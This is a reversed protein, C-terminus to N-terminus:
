PIRSYLHLLFSVISLSMDIVDLFLSRFTVSGKLIVLSVITATWKKLSYQCVDHLSILRSCILLTFNQMEQYFHKQDEKVIENWKIKKISTWIKLWFNSFQLTRRCSLYPTMWKHFGFTLPLLPSSPPPPINPSWLIKALKTFTQPHNQSLITQGQQVDM